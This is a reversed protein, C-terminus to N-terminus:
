GIPTFLTLNKKSTIKLLTIFEFILFFPVTLLLLKNKKINSVIGSNYAINFKSSISQKHRFIEVGDIIEHNKSGLTKPSIVSINLYRSLKKTLVVVFGEDYQKDNPWRQYGSTLVLIKKKSKNKMFPNSVM